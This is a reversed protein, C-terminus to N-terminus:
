AVKYTFLDYAASWELTVHKHFCRNTRCLSCQSMEFITRLQSWFEFLTCMACKTKFVISYNNRTKQNKKKKKKKKTSISDLLRMWPLCTSELLVIYVWGYNKFKWKIEHTHTNKRYTHRYVVHQGPVQLPWFPIDSLWSSSNFITTLKWSFVSFQLTNM